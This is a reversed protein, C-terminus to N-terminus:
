HPLDDVEINPSGKKMTEWPYMTEIHGDVFFANAVGADLNDMTNWNTKHFSGVSDCINGPTQWWPFIGSDNLVDASWDFEHGLATSIIWMNEESYMFIDSPSKVGQVKPAIYPTIWPYPKTPSDFPYQDIPGLFVNQAYSYQPDVPISSDHFPHDKGMSKALDAFTPCLLVDQNQLYPWLTGALDPRNIINLGEDHWRCRWSTYESPITYLWDLAIPFYGDNDNTLLLGAQGLNKLNSKCVMFKAIERGGSGIAGLSMLGFVACCFIVLCDKKTLRLDM